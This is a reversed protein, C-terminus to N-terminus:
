RLSGNPRMGSLVSPTKIQADRNTASKLPQANPLLSHSCNTLGVPNDHM